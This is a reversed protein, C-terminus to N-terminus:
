DEKYAMEKELVCHLCKIYIESSFSSLSQYFYQVISQNNIELENMCEYYVNVVFQYIELKTKGNLIKYLKKIMEENFIVIKKNSEIMRSLLMQNLLLQSINFIYFQYDKNYHYLISQISQNDFYQCFTNEIKIHSLYQYFLEIGEYGQIQCLLPYDFTIIHDLANYEYNYHKIFADFGAKLTENYITYDTLVMTTQITKVENVITNMLYRMWLLGEQYLEQMSKDDILQIATQDDYRKFYMSLIYVMSDLLSQARVKSVSSDGNAFKDIQIRLLDMLERKKTLSSQCQNLLYEFHSQNDKESIQINSVVM